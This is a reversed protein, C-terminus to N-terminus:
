RHANPAFRRSRSYTQSFCLKGTTATNRSNCALRTSRAKCIEGLTAQLALVCMIISCLWNQATQKNRDSKSAFYNQSMLIWILFYGAVKSCNACQMCLFQCNRASWIQPLIIWWLMIDRENQEFTFLIVNSVSLISLYCNVHLLALQLSQSMLMCKQHKKELSQWVFKTGSSGGSAVDYM